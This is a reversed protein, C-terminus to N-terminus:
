DYYVFNDAVEGKIPDILIANYEITQFSINQYEQEPKPDVIDFYIDTRIGGPLIPFESKYLDALPDKFSLWSFDFVGGVSNIHGIRFKISSSILTTYGRSQFLIRGHKVPLAFHRTYRFMYGFWGEKELPVPRGVLDFDPIHGNQRKFIDKIKNIVVDDSFSVTTNEM